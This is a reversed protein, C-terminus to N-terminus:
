PNDNPNTFLVSVTATGEPVTDIETSFPVKEGPGLEKVGVDVQWKRLQEGNADQLVAYVPPVARYQDTTNLVKGVLELKEDGRKVEMDLSLGEGPPPFASIGVSAYIVKATPWALAISGRGFWGLGLVVALLVGVMIWAAGASRRQNATTIAPLNPTTITSLEDPELPTVSLPEVVSPASPEEFWVHDCKGCKVRRGDPRLAQADIAFRTSCESCNVIM